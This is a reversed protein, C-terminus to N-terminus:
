RLSFYGKHKDIHHFAKMDKILNNIIIFNYDELECNKM